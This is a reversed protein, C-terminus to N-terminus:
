SGPGQRNPEIPRQRRSAKLAPARTSTIPPRGAQAPDHPYRTVISRPVRAGATRPSDGDALLSRPGAARSTGSLVRSAQPRHPPRSGSRPPGFTRTPPHQGRHGAPALLRHRNRYVGARRHSQHQASSAPGANAAPFKTSSPSRESRRRGSRRHALGSASIPAEIRPRQAPWCQGGQGNLPWVQMPSQSRCTRDGRGPQLRRDQQRGQRALPVGGHDLRGAGAVLSRCTAPRRASRAM